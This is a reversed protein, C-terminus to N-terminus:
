GNGTRAGRNCAPQGHPAMNSVCRAGVSLAAMSSGSWPAAIAILGCFERPLAALAARGVLSGKSHALLIIPLEPDEAFRRAVDDLVTRALTPVPARM